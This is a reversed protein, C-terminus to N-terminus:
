SDSGRGRHHNPTIRRPDITLTGLDFLKHCSVCRPSYHSADASYPGLESRIERPDDHNYSWHQARIGCEVCRYSSAPGLDSRLRAHVVMYSPVETRHHAKSDGCSTISGRNLDGTRVNTARGCNCRCAWTGKDIRGTVTLNGFITGTIDKYRPPQKWLPDGHRYWKWFHSGCMKQGQYVDKDCGKVSCTRNAM